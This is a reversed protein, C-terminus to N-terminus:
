EEIVVKKVELKIFKSFLIFFCRCLIISEKDLINKLIKNEKKAVM